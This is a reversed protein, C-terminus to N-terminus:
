RGFIIKGSEVTSELITLMNKEIVASKIMSRNMPAFSDNANSNKGTAIKNIRTTTVPILKIRAVAVTNKLSMLCKIPINVETM